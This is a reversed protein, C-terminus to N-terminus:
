IDLKKLLRLVTSKRMRRSDNWDVVSGFKSRAKIVKWLREEKYNRLHTMNRYVRWLGGTVCFAVAKTSDASVPQGAKDIASWGKCWGKKELLEWVRNITRKAM